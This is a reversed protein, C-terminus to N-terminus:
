LIPIVENNEDYVFEGTEDILYGDTTLISMTDLTIRFGTYESLVIRFGTYEALTILIQSLSSM